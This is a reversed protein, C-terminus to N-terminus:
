KLILKYALTATTFVLGIMSVAKEPTMEAFTIAGSLLLAVVALVISVGFTMWVAPKGSLGLQNKLANTLPVGVAGALMSVLFDLGEM